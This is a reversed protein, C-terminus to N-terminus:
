LRFVLNNNSILNATKQYSEYWVWVYATQELVFVMSFSINAYNVM